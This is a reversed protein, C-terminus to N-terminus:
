LKVFITVVMGPQMIQTPLGQGQSNFTIGTTSAATQGANGGGNTAGASVGNAYLTNFNLGHQHGPDNWDHDHAPMEAKTQTVTQWGGTAGASQADEFFSARFTATANTPGSYNASLTVTTGNIGSITATNTGDILCRMGRALGSASSVTVTPSGNTVSATTSIQSVDAASNGMTDSGILVRGRTSPLTITKNASWDDEASAGRGGSVPARTDSYKTYLKVFLDHGGDGAYETAGSLLSGLTRGNMRVFGDIPDDFPSILVYGTRYIQTSTVVLGGGSSPPAENPIYPADYITINNASQILVRYANGYAFYVVPLVGRSSAVVPFAHPTTLGQDTYVPMPTNTNALFFYAKAGSAIQGNEDYYTTPRPDFINSATM